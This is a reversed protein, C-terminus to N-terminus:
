PTAPPEVPLEERSLMLREMAAKAIYVAAVPDVRGEFTHWVAGAVREKGRKFGTIVEAGFLREAQAQFVEAEEASQTRVITGNALTALAQVDAEQAAALFTAYTIISM